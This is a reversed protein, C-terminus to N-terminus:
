GIIVTTQDPTLENSTFQFRKFDVPGIFVENIEWSVSANQFPM